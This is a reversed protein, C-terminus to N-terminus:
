TVYRMLTMIAYMYIIIVPSLTSLVRTNQLFAPEKALVRYIEEM